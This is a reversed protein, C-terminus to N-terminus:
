TFMRGSAARLSWCRIARGVARHKIRIDEYQRRMRQLFQQCIGPAGDGVAIHQVSSNAAVLHSHCRFTEQKWHM